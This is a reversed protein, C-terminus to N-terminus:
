EDGVLHCLKVEIEQKGVGSLSLLKERSHEGTVISVTRKSLGLVKAVYERLAKNAAGDVPPACLSVRSRGEEDRRVANRSARPQVRVRMQVNGDREQISEQNGPM